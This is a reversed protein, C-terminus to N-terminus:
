AFSRALNGRVRPVPRGPRAFRADDPDPPALRRLAVLVDADFADPVLVYLGDAHVVRGRRIEEGLVLAVVGRPHGPALDPLTLTLM